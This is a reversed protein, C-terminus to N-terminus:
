RPRQCSQAVCVSPVQRCSGASDPPPKRNSVPAWMSLVTASRAPSSNAWTAAQSSSSPRGTSMRATTMPRRADPASTVMFAHPLAMGDHSESIRTNVVFAIRRVPIQPSPRSIWRAPASRSRLTRDTDGIGIQSCNRFTRDPRVALGLGGSTRGAFPVPPIRDALRRCATARDDRVRRNRAPPLVAPPRTVRTVTQFSYRWSLVSSGDPRDVRIPDMGRDGLGQALVPEVDPRGGQVLGLM